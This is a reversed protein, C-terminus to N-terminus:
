ARARGLAGVTFILPYLRDWYWLKAFYLGIPSPEFRTGESTREALWRCARAVAADAGGAAALGEVALATEEITAEIGPAGGFGGDPNQARLLWGRAREVAAKWAPTSGHMACLLVRSTGYVPNTQEPARQNGFWLPVWSGDAQQSRVLYDFARDTAPGSRESPWARWARIAHATLDPCSRDFPLKGWGRCFTPIGGDSNQLDLLWRVGAAAAAGAEPDDPALRALALLAGPTDDADPVGGSRDTWAWGGPAAGTYPHETRYQQGLLWRKIAARGEPDLAGDLAGVSLTTVWTALNTDIAWSGDERASAALFEVGKRAVPHDALGSGALSMTVFSSLPTAELYGGSAPQIAELLRLTKDKTLARFLLTLPNRPPRHRHIAQGIAILAPLAYSVVRLGLAGFWSRPLAALEFPLGPISAWAEKGGGFRGALACMTLIPVSFTRDEGYRRAITAALSPPSLDPCERKLWAEARAFAAERGPALGLSAWCLTTTSINSPSDTTDGFGGDANQQRELWALGARVLGALNEPADARNRRVLELACVATATSLASSSLRGEWHGAAVRADLLARRANALTRELLGRDQQLDPTV